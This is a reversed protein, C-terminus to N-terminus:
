FISAHSGYFDHSAVLPLLPIMGSTLTLFDPTLELGADMSTLALMECGRAESKPEILQECLESM